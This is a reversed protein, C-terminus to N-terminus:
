RELRFYIKGDSYNMLTLVQKSNNTGFEIVYRNNNFELLDSKPESINNDFYNKKSITYPYKGSNDLFTNGNVIIESKNFEFKSNSIQVNTWTENKLQRTSTLEWKGLIQQNLNNSEERECSILSLLIGLIILKLKM